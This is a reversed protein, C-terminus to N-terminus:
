RRISFFNQMLEKCEDKLVGSTITFTHNLLPQQSLDMVSGCAGSKLDSVGYVVRQIRSWILCGACMHCPELTSYLVAHYIRYNNLIRGAQRICNIEAHATPDHQHISLNYGSAICEGDLILVAGVPVEGISYAISAQRIALKMWYTDSM